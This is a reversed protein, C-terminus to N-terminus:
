PTIPKGHPCSYKSDTTTACSLSANCHCVGTFDTLIQWFQCTDCKVPVQAPEM